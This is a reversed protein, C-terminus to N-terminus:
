TFANASTFDFTATGSQNANGNIGTSFNYIVDASAPSAMLPGVLGGAIAVAGLNRNIWNM